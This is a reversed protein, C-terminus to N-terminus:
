GWSWLKLKQISVSPSLLGTRAWYYVTSKPVGALESAREAAYVGRTAGGTRPANVAEDEERASMIGGLGELDRMTQLMAGDCLSRGGVKVADFVECHCDYATCVAM